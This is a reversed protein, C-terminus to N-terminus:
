YQSLKSEITYLHHYRFDKEAVPKAIKSYESYEERDAM